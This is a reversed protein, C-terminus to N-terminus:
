NYLRAPEPMRPLPKMTSSRVTEHEQMARPQGVESDMARVTRDQLSHYSRQSASSRWPGRSFFAYFAKDLGYARFVPPLSPLSASAIGLHVQIHSWFLVPAFNYAPDGEGLLGYARYLALSRALGAALTGSSLIFLLIVGVKRGTPLQLKYIRYVPFAIIIVSLIFSLIYNASFAAPADLCHAGPIPESSWLAKTCGLGLTVLLQFALMTQWFLKDSPGSRWEPDDEHLGLDGLVYCAFYAATAALALILAGIITWDDAGLPVRQLQRAHCRLAVTAVAVIPIQLPRLLRVLLIAYWPCPANRARPPATIIGTRPKCQSLQPVNDDVTAALPVRARARRAPRALSAAARLPSM